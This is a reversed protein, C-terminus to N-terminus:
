PLGLLALGRRCLSYSGWNTLWYLSHGGSVLFQPPSLNGKKVLSYSALSSNAGYAPPREITKSWVTLSSTCQGEEVCKAVYQRPKVGLFDSEMYQYDYRRENTYGFAKLTSIPKNYAFAFSPGRSDATAASGLNFLLSAEYDSLRVASGSAYHTTLNLSPYTYTTITNQSIVEQYQINPFCYNGHSGDWVNTKEFVGPTAWNSNSNVSSGSTVTVSDNTTLPPNIARLWSELITPVAIESVDGVKTVRYVHIAYDSFQLEKVTERTVTVTNVGAWYRSLTKSLADLQEQTMGFDTSEGLCTPNTNWVISYWGPYLVPDIESGIIKYSRLSRTTTATKTVRDVRKRHLRNLLFIVYAGGQGDPLPIVQSENANIDLSGNDIDRAISYSGGPHAADDNFIDSSDAFYNAYQDTLGIDRPLAAWTTPLNSAPYAADWENTRYSYIFEVPAAGAFAGISVKVSWDVYGDPLSTQYTVKVGIGSVVTSETRTAAPEDRRLPQAPPTGYLPRGDPGIGQQARNVDRQQTGADKVKQRNDGELKSWRNAQTQQKAKASLGGNDVIVNIQTTM